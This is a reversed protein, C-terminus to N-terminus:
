CVRGSKITKQGGTLGTSGGTAEPEWVVPLPLEAAAVRGEAVSMPSAPENGLALSSAKRGHIPDM